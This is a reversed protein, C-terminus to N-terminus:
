PLRDLRTVEVFGLLDEELVVLSAPLNIGAEYRPALFLRRPERAL